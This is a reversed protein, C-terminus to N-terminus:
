YNFVNRELDLNYRGTITLEIDAEEENIVYSGSPILLKILRDVGDVDCIVFKNPNSLFSKVLNENDNSLEFKKKFTVQEYYKM